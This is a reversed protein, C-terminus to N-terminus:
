RKIGGRIQTLERINRKHGYCILAVSALVGPWAIPHFDCTLLIGAALTFVMVFSGIFPVRFLAYTIVWALASAVAAVPSIISTFGLYNAVGKGGAFRHFCPFRNGLILGLGTWPVLEMQLMSVSILAVGMARGIDLFLVVTAWLFGVQRYMNTVGPNGSFENRPDDKGLIKCLIISFNIAGATYAAIFLLITPKMQFLAPYMEEHNKLTISAPQLLDAFM